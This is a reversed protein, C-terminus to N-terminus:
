GPNGLSSIQGPVTALIADIVARVARPLLRDAPFLLHLPVEEFGWDPLVRELGATPEGLIAPLEAIGQGRRAAQTITVYSTCTLAPRLDLRVLEGTSRSRLEVAEDRRRTEFALIPHSLLEEPRGPAGARLIYDRSAVLVHPYRGLLRAVLREEAVPGVRVFLDVDDGHPRLYRETELLVVHVEPNKGQVAAIADLLLPGLNPATSIRVTGAMGRDGEAVLQGADALGQLAATCREFFIRGPSTVRLSRTSREILRVGLESELASIRRSVTSASVGLHEAAQQLTGLRVVVVFAEAALLNM